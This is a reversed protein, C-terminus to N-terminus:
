GLSIANVPIWGLSYNDLRVVDFAFSLIAVIGIALFLTTRDWIELLGIRQWLRSYVKIQQLM